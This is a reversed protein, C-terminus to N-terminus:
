MKLLVMKALPLDVKDLGEAFVSFSDVRIQLTGTLM